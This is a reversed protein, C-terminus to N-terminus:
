SAPIASATATTPAFEYDATVIRGRWYPYPGDRFIWEVAGSMPIMTGAVRQSDGFHDAWPTLVPTGKVDRFRM